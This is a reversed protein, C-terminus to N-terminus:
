YGMRSAMLSHLRDRAESIIEWADIGTVEKFNASVKQFDETDKLSGKEGWTGVIQTCNDLLNQAEKTNESDMLYHPIAPTPWYLDPNGCPEPRSIFDDVELEMGAMERLERMSVLQKEHEM